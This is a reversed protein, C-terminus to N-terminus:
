NYGPNQKLEFETGATKDIESQPIPLYKYDSTWTRISNYEINNETLLETDGWRVIDWFRLGEGIFERRRELKINQSTAEISSPEGFARERVMDICEQASVGGVPSQGHM